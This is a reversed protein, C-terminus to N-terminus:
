CVPCEFHIGYLVNTCFHIVKENNKKSNYGM